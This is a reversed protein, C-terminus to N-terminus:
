GLNCPFVMIRRQMNWLRYSISIYNFIFYSNVWARSLPTIECLKLNSLLIKLSVAHRPMYAVASSKTSISNWMACSPLLKDPILGPSAKLHLHLFKTPNGGIIHHQAHHILSLIKKNKTPLCTSVIQIQMLINRGNAAGPLHRGPCDAGGGESAVSLSVSSVLFM